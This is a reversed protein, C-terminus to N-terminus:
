RSPGAPELTVAVFDREILERSSLALAKRDLASLREPAFQIRAEFGAMGFLAYVHDGFTMDGWWCVRDTPHDRADFTVYSLSACAVHADARVAAEFLSSKFAWVDKGGTSTGEPFFMVSTGQELSDRMCDIVRPLDRLRGRDVFLTGIRRALWGIAPWRAVESKAVFVSPAFALLALIDVYSLHNAVLLVPAAPPEGELRLRMGILRAAGRAWRGRLAMRRAAASDSGVFSVLEFPLLVLTWGVLGFM